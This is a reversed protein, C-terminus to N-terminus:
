PQPVMVGGGFRYAASSGIHLGYLVAGPRKALAQKTAVLDDIDLEYDGTEIDIVVFQGMHEPEFRARIQREYIAEGRQAVEEPTYQPYPM